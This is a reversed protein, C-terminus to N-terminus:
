HARFRADDVRDALTGLAGSIVVDARTVNVQNILIRYTDSGEWLFQIMGGRYAFDKQTSVTLLSAPMRAAALTPWLQDATRADLFLIQCGTGDEPAATLAKLEADTLMKVVVKRGPVQAWDQGGAVGTELRAQVASPRLFCITATDTPAHPWAVFRFLNVLFNAEVDGPVHHFGGFGVDGARPSTSAVALASALLCAILTPRRM